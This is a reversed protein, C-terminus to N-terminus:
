TRKEWRKAMECWSCIEVAEPRQYTYTIPGQMWWPESRAHCKVITICLVYDGCGACWTYHPWDEPVVTRGTKWPNIPPICGVLRGPPLKM